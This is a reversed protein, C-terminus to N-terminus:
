KENMKELLVKKVIDRYVALKEDVFSLSKHVDSKVSELDAIMTTIKKIIANKDSTKMDVVHPYEITEYLGSFKRSYALPIVPVGSSIAGITAHMRAGMFIDMKSIYSKAEIPSKFRPAVIVRSFKESLELAVRYDDEVILTESTVHPVLHIELDKRHSFIELLENVFCKYDISLEFQNKGTYGGNYLLGSINVGVKVVGNLVPTENKEKEYSLRFAVDISEACNKINLDELVKSSMYDRAVVYECKKMIHSAILKAVSGKFPGITQPSMVLPINFLTASYKGILMKIFRVNGYINSFSDGEGIDFVLDCSAIEKIIKLPRKVFTKASFEVFRMNNNNSCSLYDLPGSNGIVIYEVDVGLKKVEEDIIKHNCISLAGVGLNGSKFSHWLLGIKIIM